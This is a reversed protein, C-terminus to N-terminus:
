GAGRVEQQEWLRRVGAALDVRPAWGLARLGGCDAREESTEDPRLLSGDRKVPPAHGSAGALLAIIDAVSASRGTGVNLARCRGERAPHRLVARTAACVDDVHIWDRRHDLEGLTVAGEVRWAALLKPFLFGDRQGPGYVNFLRLATM